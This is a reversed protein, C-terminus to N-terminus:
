RFIVSGPPISGKIVNFKNAMEIWSSVDADSFDAAFEPLPMTKAAAEPIKLYKVMTMRAAVENAKTWAVADNLAAKMAAPVKPNKEVFAKDMVYFAELYRDVVQPGYSVALRGSGSQQIRSLFPEVVLAADIAGGKLMDGMQPFAAEVFTVQSAKVGQNELWKKFLIHQVSNLGPVGVKLQKFDKASTANIGPRTVAGATTHGRSQYSAAAVMGLDLGGEKALLLVPATLTAVHLSQSVLAAPMASGVPILQLNVDLGHKAYFGQEKAVFAPMFASAGTYGLELKTQAHASLATLALLGTAVAMSAIKILLRNMNM